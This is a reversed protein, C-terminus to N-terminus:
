SFKFKTGMNKNTQMLPFHNTYFYIYNQSKLNLLLHSAFRDKAFEFYTFYNQKSTM